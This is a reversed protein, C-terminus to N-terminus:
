VYVRVCVCVCVCLNVCVHMYRKIGICGCETLSRKNVVNAVTGVLHVVIFVVCRKGSGKDFPKQRIQEAITEDDIFESQRMFIAPM